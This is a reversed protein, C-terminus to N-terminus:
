GLRQATYYDSMAKGTREMMAQMMKEWEERSMHHVVRQNPGGVDYITSVPLVTGDPMRVCTRSTLERKAIRAM